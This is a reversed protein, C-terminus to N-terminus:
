QSIITDDNSLKGIKKPTEEHTYLHRTDYDYYYKQDNLYIVELEISQNLDLQNLAQQPKQLSAIKAHTKCYLLATQCSRSCRKNTKAIVAHCQHSQPQSNGEDGYPDVIGVAILKKELIVKLMDNYDIGLEGHFTQIIRKTFAVLEDRLERDYISKSTM